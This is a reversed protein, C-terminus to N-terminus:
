IYYPEDGKKFSLEKIKGKIYTQAEKLKLQKVMAEIQVHDKNLYSLSAMGGNLLYDAIKFNGKIVALM